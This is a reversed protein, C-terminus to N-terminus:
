RSNETKKNLSALDNSFFIIVAALLCAAGMLEISEEVVYDMFWFGLPNNRIISDASWTLDKGKILFNLILTGTIAYWDKIYRTASAISAIAYFIYGALMYMKGKFANSSDRMIKFFAVSMIGGLFSYFCLEVTTRLAGRHFAISYTNHGALQGIYDSLEHRLNVSDELFMITLGIFLLFWALAASKTKRSKIYTASALIASIALLSWQLIETLSGETFLIVWMILPVGEEVETFIDRIGFVNVHMIDVLYCITIMTLIYFVAGLVVVRAIRHRFLLHKNDTSSSM